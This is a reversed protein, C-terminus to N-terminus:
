HQRNRKEEDKERTLFRKLRRKTETEAVDQRIKALLLGTIKDPVAVTEDTEEQQTTLSSARSYITGRTLVKISDRSLVPAILAALPVSEDILGQNNIRKSKLSACMQGVLIRQTNTMRRLIVHDADLHGPDQAAKWSKANAPRKAPVNGSSLRHEDTKTLSSARQSRVSKTGAIDRDDSKGENVPDTEPRITENVGGKNNAPKMQTDGVNSRKRARDKEACSTAAMAIANCENCTDPKVAAQTADLTSKVADEKAVKEEASIEKTNENPRANKGADLFIANRIEAILAELCPASPMELTLAVIEKEPIGAFRVDIEDMAVATSVVYSEPSSMLSQGLLSQVFIQIESRLLMRRIEDTDRAIQVIMRSKEPNVRELVDLVTQVLAQVQYNVLIPVIRQDRNRKEFWTRGPTANLYVCKRFKNTAEPNISSSLLSSTSPRSGPVGRFPSKTSSTVSSVDKVARFSSNISILDKNPEWCSRPGHHSSDNPRSRKPKLMTFRYDLRMSGITSRRSASRTSRNIWNRNSENTTARSVADDDEDLHFSYSNREGGNMEMNSRALKRKSMGEALAQKIRLEHSPGLLSYVHPTIVPMKELGQQAIKTTRANSTLAKGLDDNKGMYQRCKEEFDRAAQEELIKKRPDEHLKVNQMRAAAAEETDVVYCTLANNWAGSFRKKKAKELLPTVPKVRSSDNNNWRTTHATLLHLCLIKQPDVEDGTFIISRVFEYSDRTANEKSAARATCCEKIAGNCHYCFGPNHTEYM